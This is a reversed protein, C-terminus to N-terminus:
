LNSSKANQTYSFIEAKDKHIVFKWSCLERIKLPPSIVELINM